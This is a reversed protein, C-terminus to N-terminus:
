GIPVGLEPGEGEYRDPAAPDFRFRAVFAFAVPLSVRQCLQLRHWAVLAMSVGEPVRGAAGEGEYLYPAVIVHDREDERSFFDAVASFEGTQPDSDLVRPDVWIIVAAHELSHITQVMPPPVPYVGAPLPVPDHPGSAPPISSYSSLSPPTPIDSGGVHAQDLKEPSYPPVATVPACGAEREASEARQLLGREEATLGSTSPVIGPAM